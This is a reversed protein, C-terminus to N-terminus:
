ILFYTVFDHIGICEINSTETNSTETNPENYILYYWHLPVIILQGKTLQVEVINISVDIDQSQSQSQDSDSNIDKNPNSNPNCLLINISPSICQLLGYKYRNRIWNSGTLSWKTNSFPNIGFWEDKFKEVDINTYTDTNDTNKMSLLNDDIILPQKNLLIDTRFMSYHTQQITTQKPYRYYSYIYLIIILVIIIKWFM